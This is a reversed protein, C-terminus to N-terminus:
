MLGPFEKNLHEFINDPITNLDATKELCISIHGTPISKILQNFNGYGIVIHRLGGCDIDGRQKAITLVTPNVLLEEFRDTEGSSTNSTDGRQEYYLDGNLYIAVYRIEESFNFLNYVIKQKDM